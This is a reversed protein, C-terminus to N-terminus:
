LCSKQMKLSQLRDEHGYGKYKLTLEDYRLLQIIVVTDIYRGQFYQYSFRLFVGHIIYAFNFLCFLIYAYIHYVTFIALGTSINCRGQWHLYFLIVTGFVYIVINEPCKMQLVEPFYNDLNYWLIFKSLIIWYYGGTHVCRHYNIKFCHKGVPIVESWSWIIHKFNLTISIHLNNWSINAIPIFM